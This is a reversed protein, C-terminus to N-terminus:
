YSYFRIHGLPFFIFYNRCWWGCENMHMICEYKFQVWIIIKIAEEMENEGEKGRKVSGRICTVNKAIYNICALLFRHTIYFKFLNLKIIFSGSHILLFTRAYICYSFFGNFIPSKRHWNSIVDILQQYAFYLWQM